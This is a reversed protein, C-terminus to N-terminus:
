LLSLTERQLLLQVAENAAGQWLNPNGLSLTRWHHCLGVTPVADVPTERHWEKLSWPCSSDTPVNLDHPRSNWSYHFEKHRVWSAWTKPWYECLQLLNVGFQLLIPWTKAAFNMNSKPPCFTCSMRKTSGYAVMQRAEQCLAEKERLIEQGGEGRCGSRLEKLFFFSWPNPWSKQM